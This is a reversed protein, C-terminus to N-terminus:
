FNNHFRIIHKKLNLTHQYNHDLIEHMEEYITKLEEIPKSNIYDIVDFIKKLRDQHNEVTDYSEDWWRDFTKFGLSKIYELSYPAGVVILPLKYFM